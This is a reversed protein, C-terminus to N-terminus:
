NVIFVIMIKIQKPSEWRNNLTGAIVLLSILTSKNILIM